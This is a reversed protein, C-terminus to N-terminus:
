SHGPELGEWLQGILSLREEVSLGTTDESSLEM